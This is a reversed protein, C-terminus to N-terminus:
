TPTTARPPAGVRRARDPTRHDTRRARPRAAPRRTGKNAGTKATWVRRGYTYPINEKGGRPSDYRAVAFNPEGTSRRYIYQASASNGKWTPMYELEPPECPAPMVPEWVEGDNPQTATAAILSTGEELTIPEFPDPTADATGDTM